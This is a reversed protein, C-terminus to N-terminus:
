IFGFARSEIAVALKRKREDSATALDYSTFGQRHLWDAFEKSFVDNAAMAELLRQDASVGLSASQTRAITQVATSM